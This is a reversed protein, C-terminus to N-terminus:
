GAALLRCARARAITTTTALCVDIVLQREDASLGELKKRYEDSIAYSRRTITSRRVAAQPAVLVLRQLM